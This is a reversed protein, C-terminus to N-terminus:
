IININTYIYFSLIELEKPDVQEKLYFRVVTLTVIIFAIVTM